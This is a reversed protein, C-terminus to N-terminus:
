GANIAELHEELDSHDTPEITVHLTRTMSHTRATATM